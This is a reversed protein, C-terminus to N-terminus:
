RVVIPANLVQGDQQISIIYVGAPLDDVWITRQNEFARTTRGDISTIVGKQVTKNGNWTVTIEDSAPNPYVHLTNGESLVKIGVIVSVYTSDSGQCGNEDTVTVSYWGSGTAITSSASSGDSWSYSEFGSASTIATTSLDQSQIFLTDVMSLVIPAPHSIDITDMEMCGNADTITVYHQGSDLNNLTMATDGNSWLYSYPTTGGSTQTSAVGDSFGYCTANSDATAEFILANPEDVEIISVSTCSNSDTVTVVQTGSSLGYAIATNAGSSWSYTYPPTGGSASATAVGDSGGFCSVNSDVIASANLTAPETIVITSSDVLGYHDTVTVTYSGASLGTITSTTAGTSWAFVYPTTGGSVNAGVAGDSAGNCTIANSLITDVDLAQVGVLTVSYSTICLPDGGGNDGARLYWVGAASDGILDDLDYGNPLYEGSQPTGSPAASASDNFTTTVASITAGGTWTSTPALIVQSSSPSEISFNTQHHYSDGIGPNTCTGDTKAWTIEVNVDVVVTESSNFDNSQFTVGPLTTCYTGCGDITTSSGPNYTKTVTQANLTFCLLSFVTSILTTQSAKM